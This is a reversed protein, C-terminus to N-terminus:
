ACPIYWFLTKSFGTSQILRCQQQPVIKFGGVHTVNCTVPVLLRVFLLQFLQGPLRQADSFHCRVPPSPSM